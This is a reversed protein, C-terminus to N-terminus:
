ISCPLSGKWSQGRWFSQLGHWIDEKFESTVKGALVKLVDGGVSPWGSATFMDTEIENGIKHLRIKHFKTAVKKGEGIVKDFNLVKYEKEEELTHTEDKSNFPM